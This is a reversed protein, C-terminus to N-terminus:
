EREQGPPLGPREDIDYQRRSKPVRPLIQRRIQRRSKAWEWFPGYMRREERLSLIIGPAAFAVIGVPFVWDPIGDFFFVGVFLLAGASLSAIALCVDTKTAKQSPDPKLQEM